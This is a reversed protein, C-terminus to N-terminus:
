WDFSMYNIDKLNSNIIQSIIPVNPFFNVTGPVGVFDDVNILKTKFLLASM